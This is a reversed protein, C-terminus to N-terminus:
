DLEGSGRYQRGKIQAMVEDVAKPRFGTDVEIGIGLRGKVSALESLSFSGWEPFDGVVYGFCIDSGDWDQVYWTYYGCPDFFKVRFYPSITEGNEDTNDHTLPTGQLQCAKRMLELKRQGYTIGNQNIHDALYVGGVAPTTTTNM